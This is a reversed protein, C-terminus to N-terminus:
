SYVHIGGIAYLRLIRAFALHITHIARLAVSWLENSRLHVASNNSILM